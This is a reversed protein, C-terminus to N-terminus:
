EKIADLKIAVKYFYTIKQYKTLYKPLRPKASLAVKNINRRSGEFDRIIV